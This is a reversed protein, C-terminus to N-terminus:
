KIADVIPAEEKRFHTTAKGPNQWYELTNVKRTRPDVTMAYKFNKNDISGNPLMPEEERMEVKGTHANMYGWRPATDPNSYRSDNSFGGERGPIKYLDPFHMHGNQDTNPQVKEVATRPNITRNWYAPLNYSGNDRQGNDQYWKAYEAQDQPAITGEQIAQQQWQPKAWAQAEPDNALKANAVNIYQNVSPPEFFSVNGQLLPAAPSGNFGQGDQPATDSLSQGFGPYLNSVVGKLITGLESLPDENVKPM